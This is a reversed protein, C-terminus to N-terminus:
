AELVQEVTFAFDQGEIRSGPVINVPGAATRCVLGAPSRFLIAEERWDSCRIHSHPKPGLICSEAMLLVADSAPVTRHGSEVTLLASASLAHPRRFRVAVAGFELLAGDEIVAPGDLERGDLRTPGYPTLVYRGGSRALRAHRRSLDALIPLDPGDSAGIGPQGIVLQEALTVLYGGVGDVWLMQQDRRPSASPQGTVTQDEPAGGARTTDRLRLSIEAVSSAPRSAAYWQTPKDDAALPM